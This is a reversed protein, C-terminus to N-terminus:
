AAKGDKDTFYNVSVDILLDGMGPLAFVFSKVSLVSIELKEEELESVGEIWIIM